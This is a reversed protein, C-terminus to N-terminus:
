PMKPISPRITVDSTSTTLRTTPGWIKRGNPVPRSTIAASRGTTRGNLGRPVPLTITPGIPGNITTLIASSVPSLRIKRFNYTLSYNNILREIPKNASLYWGSLREKQLEKPLSTSYSGLFTSGHGHYTQHYAKFTLSTDDTLDQDLRLSLSEKAIDGRSKDANIGNPFAYYQRREMDGSILWSTKGSRGSNTLTYGHM